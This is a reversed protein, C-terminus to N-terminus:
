GEMNKISGHGKCKPCPKIKRLGMTRLSSGGPLYGHGDDPYDLEGIGQCYPCIDPNDKLRLEQCLKKNYTILEVNKYHIVAVFEDPSMTKETRFQWQGSLILKEYVPDLVYWILVVPGGQSLATDLFPTYYSDKKLGEKLINEANKFTTGHYAIRM